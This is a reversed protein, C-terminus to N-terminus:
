ISLVYMTFIYIFIFPFFVKGFLLRSKRQPLLFHFQAQLMEDFILCFLNISFYLSAFYLFMIQKIKNM